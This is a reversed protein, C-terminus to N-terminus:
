FSGLAQYIESVLSRDWSIHLIMDNTEENLLISVDYGFHQIHKTLTQVNTLTLMFNVNFPMDSMSVKATTYGEKARAEIKKEIDLTMANIANTQLINAQAEKTIRLMTQAAKM